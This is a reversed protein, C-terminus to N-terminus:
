HQRLEDECERLSSASAIVGKCAPIRGVFSSDDLKDYTASALAHDIYDSFIFRM